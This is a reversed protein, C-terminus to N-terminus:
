MRAQVTASARDQGQEAEEMSAPLTALFALLQQRNESPISARLAQGLRNGNLMARWCEQNPHLYAGRGAKKGTPDIEVGNATRVLRILARKGAVQRCAICTRQPIHKPKLSQPQRAMAQVLEGRMTEDLTV